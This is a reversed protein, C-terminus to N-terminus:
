RQPFKALDEKKAADFNVFSHLYKLNNKAALFPYAEIDFGDITHDSHGVNDLIHLMPNKPLVMGAGSHAVRVNLDSTRRICSNREFIINSTLFELSSELDLDNM